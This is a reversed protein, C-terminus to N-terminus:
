LWRRTHLGSQSRTKSQRSTHNLLAASESRHSSLATRSSLDLTSTYYHYGSMLPAVVHRARRGKFAKHTGKVWKPVGIDVESIAFSLGCGSTTLHIFHIPSSDGNRQSTSLTSCRLKMSAHPLAPGTHPQRACFHALEHGPPGDINISGRRLV